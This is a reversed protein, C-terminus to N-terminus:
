VDGKPFREDLVALTVERVGAVEGPAYEEDGVLAGLWNAVAVLEPHGQEAALELALRSLRDAQRLVYVLRVPDTRPDGTM